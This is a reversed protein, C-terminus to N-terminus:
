HLIKRIMEDLTFLSNAIKNQHNFDVKTDIIEELKKVLESLDWSTSVAKLKNDLFLHEIESNSDTIVLIKCNSALLNPLKSPLSGKSTREKQPIIQVTSKAYLEELCERKVLNHFKINSNTNNDKLKEFFSGQSFIHYKSNKIKRSATDFFELLKFPNQKEGLAGSYVINIKDKSLISNLNNTVIKGMTVFPYQIELKSEELNYLKKAVSKMENSLFILKDCNNYCKNEVKHIFTNVLRNIVGKKQNAYVEQLDHVMGVKKISKKIFPLIVFYAFSPPFVPIIIDKNLQHKKLNRLIFFAFSIELILRRILTKKTFFLNKGGRVIEIGKLTKQSKKISWDPYFPHFCLVTVNHGKKQLSVVFDTNFKGTSIPEPYFFPSLVLINKQSNM